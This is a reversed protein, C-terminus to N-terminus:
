YAALKEATTAHLPVLRSKQFKGEVIHLHPPPAGLRVDKMNLRLAEGVRRGSSALLGMLTCYAYPRLFRKPGLQLAEQMLAEIDSQSYLYPSTRRLPQLVRPGPVETEPLAARLHSLFGRVVKLRSTKGALGRGPAPACAWDIAMQARIPSSVNQSALFQ